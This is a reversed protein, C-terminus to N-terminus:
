RGHKASPAVLSFQNSRFRVSSATTVVARSLPAAVGGNQRTHPAAPDLPHGVRRDKRMDTERPHRGRGQRFAGYSSM